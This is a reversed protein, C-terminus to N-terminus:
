SNVYNEFAEPHDNFEPFEENENKLAAVIDEVDFNLECHEIINQKL